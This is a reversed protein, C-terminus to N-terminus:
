LTLDNWKTAVVIVEIEPRLKHITQRFHQMSAKFNAYLDRREVAFRITVTEMDPWLPEDRHNRRYKFYNIVDQRLGLYTVDVDDILVRRGEEEREEEGEQRYGNEERDAIAEEEASFVGVSQEALSTSKNIDFPTKKIQSLGWQRKVFRIFRSQQRLEQLKLALKYREQEMTDYYYHQKIWDFDQIRLDCPCVFQLRRLRKLRSLLCLSVPFRFRSMMHNRKISLDELNPCVRSIYGYLVLTQEVQDTMGSNYSDRAMIHLTKLRRCAWVKRAIPLSVNDSGPISCQHPKMSLENTVYFPHLPLNVDPAKFHELLPCQHLLQHIWHGTDHGCLQQSGRRALIIEVSTLRNEIRHLDLLVRSSLSPMKLMLTSFGWSEVLPFQGIPALEEYQSGGPDESIHLSTLKPCHLALHCFFQERKEKHFLFNGPCNELVPPVFPPRTNYVVPRRPILPRCRVIRLETLDPCKEVLAEIATQTLAMSDFTISQLLCSRQSNFSSSKSTEELKSVRDASENPRSAVYLIKLNPCLEIISVISLTTDEPIKYLWLSFLRYGVLKLLPQLRSWIYPDRDIGLILQRVKIDNPHNNFLSTLAYELISWVIEEHHKALRKIYFNPILGTKYEVIHALRLNHTLQQKLALETSSNIEQRQLLQNREQQQQQQRQQTKSKKGQSKSRTILELYLHIVSLRVTRQLLSHAIIRWEHCVLPIVLRLSAQGTLLLIYEIIELPLIPLPKQLVRQMDDDTVPRKTKTKALSVM